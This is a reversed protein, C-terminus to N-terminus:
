QAMKFDACAMYLNLQAASKHTNVSDGPILVDGIAKPVLTVSAGGVVDTLPIIVAGPHACDGKHIHTPQVAGDPEGTLAIVVKTCATAAPTTKQCAGPAVSTVTVTGKEGSQNLPNFPYTNGKSSMMNDALAVSAAVAVIALAALGLSLKRM